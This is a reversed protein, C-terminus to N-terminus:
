SIISFLRQLEPIEQTITNINKTVDSTVQNAEHILAHFVWANPQAEETVWLVAQGSFGAFQSRDMNSSFVDLIM